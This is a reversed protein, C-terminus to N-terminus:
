LANDKTSFYFQALSPWASPELMSQVEPPFRVPVTADVQLFLRLSQLGADVLPKLGQLIIKVLDSDRARPRPENIHFDLSKLSGRFREVLMPMLYDYIGYPQGDPQFVLTHLHTAALRSLFLIVSFVSGRVDLRKLTSFIPPIVEWNMNLRDQLHIKLDSIPAQSLLLCLVALEPARIYAKSLDVSGIHAFLRQPTSHSVRTRMPGIIRLEDLRPADAVARDLASEIPDCDLTSHCILTLSRISPPFPKAQPSIPGSLFYTLGRLKPFLHFKNQGRLATLHTYCSQYKIIHASDDDHESICLNRVRAAYRDFTNWADSSNCCNNLFDCDSIRADNVLNIFISEPILSTFPVFSHMSRWLFDLAPDTFARCCCSLRYLSKKDDQLEDLIVALIESICLTEFPGPM